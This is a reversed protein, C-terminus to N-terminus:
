SQSRAAIAGQVAGASADLDVLMLLEAILKCVQSFARRKNVLPRTLGTAIWIERSAFAEFSSPGRSGIQANLQASLQDYAWKVTIMQARVDLSEQTDNENRAPKLLSGAHQVFHDRDHNPLLEAASVLHEYAKLMSAFEAFQKELLARLESAEGNVSDNRERLSAVTITLSSAAMAAREDGDQQAGDNGAELEHILGVLDIFAPSRRVTEFSEGILGCRQKAAVSKAFTRSTDSVEIM